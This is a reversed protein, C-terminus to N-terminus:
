RMALGCAVTFLPSNKKLLPQSQQDLNFMSFPDAIQTELGLSKALFETIGPLLSTGGSLLLLRPAVGGKEAFYAVTKKIEDSVMTLLPQIAAAVKGELQDSLGYTKKYEEAVTLDLGLSSSIARSIAEGATPLQRTLFLNGKNILIIDFSKTGLNALIVDGQNFVPKLARVLALTETELFLLELGALKCVQLYREVLVKPAAVLLLKIKNNKASGEDNIIEWDLNVEAMPQPILNEAEWPVAQVLEEESMKPLEMVQTSVRSEPLCAIVGKATVKAEDKLKKIAEAVVVLDKEVVFSLDAPPTKAIGATVLRFFNKEKALQVVKITDSGIDLGFYDNM